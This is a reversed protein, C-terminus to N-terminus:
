PSVTPVTPTTRGSSASTTSASPSGGALTSSARVQSVAADEAISARIPPWPAAFAPTSM